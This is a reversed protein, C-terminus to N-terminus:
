GVNGQPLARGSPKAFNGPLAQTILDLAPPQNAHILFGVAHGHECDVGPVPSGPTVPDSNFGARRQKEAERYLCNGRENKELM